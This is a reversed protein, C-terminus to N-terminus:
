ESTDSAALRTVEQSTEPRSVGLEKEAGVLRDKTGAVPAPWATYMLGAVFCVLLPDPVLLGM